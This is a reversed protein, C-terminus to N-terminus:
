FVRCIQWSPIIKIYLPSEISLPLFLFDKQKINLRVYQYILTLKLEFYYIYFKKLM